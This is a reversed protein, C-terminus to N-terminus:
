AGCCKKYKKGSRCTCPENRGIKRGQHVFPKREFEGAFDDTMRKTLQSPEGKIWKGDPDYAHYFDPEVDVMPQGDDMSHPNYKNLENGCSECYWALSGRNWSSAGNKQCQTINCDGGKRGKMPNRDALEYMASHRDGSSAFEITRPDVFTDNKNSKSM